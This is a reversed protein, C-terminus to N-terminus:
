WKELGSWFPVAFIGDIWRDQDGCLNSYAYLGSLSMPRKVDVFYARLFVLVIAHMPIRIKERWLLTRCRPVSTRPVRLRSWEAAITSCENVASANACKKIGRSCCSPPASVRHMSLLVSSPWSSSLNLARAAHEGSNTTDMAEPYMTTSQVRKSIIPRHRINEFIDNIGIGSIGAPM